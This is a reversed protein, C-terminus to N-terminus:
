NRSRKATIEDDKVVKKHIRGRLRENSNKRLSENENLHVEVVVVPSTAWFTITHFTKFPFDASFQFREARRCRELREIWMCNQGEFLRRLLCFFPSCSKRGLFVSTLYILNECKGGGCCDTLGDLGEVYKTCDLLMFLIFIIKNQNLFNDIIQTQFPERFLAFLVVLNIRARSWM